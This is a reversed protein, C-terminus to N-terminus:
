KAKHMHGSLWYGLASERLSVEQTQNVKYGHPKCLM